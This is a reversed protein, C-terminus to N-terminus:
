WIEAPTSFLMVSSEMQQWLSYSTESQYFSWVPLCRRWDFGWKSLILLCTDTVDSAIDCSVPVNIDRFLVERAVSVPINNWIIHTHLILINWATKYWIALLPLVFLSYEFQVPLLSLAAYVCNCIVFSAAERIENYATIASPFVFCSIKTMRWDHKVAVLIKSTFVHVYNM